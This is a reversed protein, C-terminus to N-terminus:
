VNVIRSFQQQTNNNPLYNCYDCWITSQSSTSVYIVHYNRFKFNSNGFVVGFYRIIFATNLYHYPQQFHTITKWVNIFWILNWRWRRDGWGGNLAWIKQRMLEKALTIFAMLKFFFRFQPTCLSRYPHHRRKRGTVRCRKMKAGRKKM